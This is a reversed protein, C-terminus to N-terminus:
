SRWQMQVFADRPKDAIASNGTQIHRFVADAAPTDPESYGQGQNQGQSISRCDKEYLVALAFLSNSNLRM